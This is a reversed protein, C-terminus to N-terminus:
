VVELLVSVVDIKLEYKYRVCVYLETDCGFLFNGLKWVRVFGRSLCVPLERMSIPLQQCLPAYVCGLIDFFPREPEIKFANLVVITAGPRGAATLVDVANVDNNLGCM